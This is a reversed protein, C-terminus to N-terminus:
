DGVTRSRRYRVSAFVMILLGLLIGNLGKPVGTLQISSTGSSLVAFLFASPVLGWPSGGSLLAVGLGDFGYGPSFNAYFRHEFAQVLFAGALGAIAGSAMMAKITVARVNVGATEAASPNAGTASLEYGAVTRKLWFALIAVGLIGILLALSLRFPGGEVLNPLFSGKDLLRTTPSQQKMDRMPGAALWVTLFGAVNNLMITSIVEHGGRYAKILGAPLAWAAGAAMAALSGLWLGTPGPFALAFHCAAAAGMTLQGDAGINFLGARLALFVALGTVVLPTMERFTQRWAAPGGMSGDIFSRVAESPPVKTAVVAAWVLLFALLALAIHRAGLGKM